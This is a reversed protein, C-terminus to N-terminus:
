ILKSRCSGLSVSCYCCDTTITQSAQNRRVTLKKLEEENAEGILPHPDAIRHTSQFIVEPMAIYEYASMSSYLSRMGVVGNLM